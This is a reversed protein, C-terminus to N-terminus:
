IMPSSAVRVLLGTLDSTAAQRELYPWDVTDSQVRLITQADRWARDDHRKSRAYAALTHVVMDEPGAVTIAYTYGPLDLRYARSYDVPVTGGQQPQVVDVVIATAHHLLRFRTNRSDLSDPPNVVHYAPGLAAAFSSLQDAAIDAAITVDDITRPMGHVVVAISGIVCPPIDLDDLAAAVPLTAALTASDDRLTPAKRVHAAIEDGFRAAVFLRTREVESMAPHRRALGDWALAVAFATLDCAAELRAAPAIARFIAIQRAEADPSTDRALPLM